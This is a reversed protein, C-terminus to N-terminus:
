QGISSNRHDRGGEHFHHRLMSQSLLFFIVALVVVFLLQGIGFSPPERGSSTPTNM